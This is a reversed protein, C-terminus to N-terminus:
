KLSLSRKEEISPMIPRPIPTLNYFALPDGVAADQAIRVAEEAGTISQKAITDFGFDSYLKTAPGGTLSEKCKGFLEEASCNSKSLLMVGEYPETRSIFAFAVEKNKYLETEIKSFHCTCNIGRTKFRIKTACFQQERDASDLLHTILANFPELRSAKQLEDKMQPYKKQQGLTSALAVHYRSQMNDLEIASQYAQQALQQWRNYKNTEFSVYSAKDQFVRGLKYLGEAHEPKTLNKLAAQLILEASHPQTAKTSKAAARVYLEVEQPSCQAFVDEILSASTNPEATLQLASLLRVKASSEQERNTACKLARNAGEVALQPENSQLAIESLQLNWDLDNDNRTLMDQLLTLAKPRNELTLYCRILGAYGAPDQPAIKILKEYLTIAKNQGGLAESMRALNILPLSASPLADVAREGARFAGETDGMQWSHYSLALQGYPDNPHTTSYTQATALAAPMDGKRALDAPAQLSDSLDDARASGAVLMMGLLTISALASKGVRIQSM